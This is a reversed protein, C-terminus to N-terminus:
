AAPLALRAQVVGVDDPVPALRFGLPTLLHAMDRNERLVIGHIEDLGRRTADDILRQMLIRGIGERRCADAVVIAFECGRAPEPDLVLRAVAVFADREPDVAVLVTEREPDPHTFRELLAPPLEKLLSMFRFRRASESLQRVFTQERDRDQPAMDRVVLRRGSRTEIETPPHRPWADDNSRTM